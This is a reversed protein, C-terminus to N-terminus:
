VLPVNLFLDVFSEDLSAKAINKTHTKKQNEKFFLM